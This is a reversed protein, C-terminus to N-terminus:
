EISEVQLRPNRLRDRLNAVNLGWAVAAYIITGLVLNGVLWVAGGRSPMVQLILGMALSAVVMLIADRYPVPLALTRKGITWSLVFALSYAMLTAYAAGIVGLHPIMIINLGVNAIAAAGSIYVQHITRRSLQFSLDFYYAKAGALLAAVAVIPIIEVASERYPGGLVVGAVEPALVSLGVVGPIGVGMLMLITQRLRKSAADIGGEEFSRVIVPYSALNIVMLLVTITQQSLDYAVAYTGADATGRMWSLLLRDSVDVIYSLAATVTLPMGYALLRKFIDRDVYTLRVAGWDRIGLCLTPVAFGVVGAILVGQAGFGLSALAAGFGTAIGARILNYVGYRIPQLSARVWELAIEFGSQVVLLVAGLLVITSFTAARWFHWILVALGAIFAVAVYAAALTSLLRNRDDPGSHFRLLGLRIWQFGVVNLLATSALVIAYQGYEEPTLYRSYIAIAAFNLVAPVGRAILYLTAHRGMM